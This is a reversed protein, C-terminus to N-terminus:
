AACGAYAAISAPVNSSEAVLKRMGIAGLGLKAGYFALIQLASVACNMILEAKCDEIVQKRETM